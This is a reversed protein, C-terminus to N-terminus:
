RAFSATPRPAGAPAAPRRSTNRSPHTIVGSRRPKAPPKSLTRTAATTLGTVALDALLSRWPLSPLSGQGAPRGEPLELIAVRSIELPFGEAQWGLYGRPHTLGTGVTAPEGNITLAATDGLVTVQYTNWQGSPKVLDARARAGRAGDIGGERGKLMQVQYGRRPWPNGELGARLFLGSDWRDGEPFRWTAVLVFNAYEKNTRLWGNGGGTYALVGDRVTWDGANMRTWGDMTKGDFLSVWAPTDQAAGRLAPGTGLLLIM